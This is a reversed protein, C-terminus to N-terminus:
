CNEVHPHYCCRRVRSVQSGWLMAEQRLSGDHVHKQDAEVWEYCMFMMLLFFCINHTLFWWAMSRSMDDVFRRLDDVLERAEELTPKTPVVDAAAKIARRQILSLSHFISCAIVSAFVGYFVFWVYAWYFDQEELGVSDNKFFERIHSEDFIREAGLDFGVMTTALLCGVLAAGLSWLISYNPDNTTCFHTIDQSVVYNCARAHSETTGSASIPLEVAISSRRWGHSISGYASHRSSSLLRHSSVSVLRSRESRREGDKCHELDTEMTVVDLGGQGRRIEDAKCELNELWAAGFKANVPVCPLALVGRTFIPRFGHRYMYTLMLPYTCAASIYLIAETMLGVSSAVSKNFWYRKMLYIHMCVAFLLGCAVLISPLRALLRFRRSPLSLFIVAAALELLVHCRQLLARKCAM